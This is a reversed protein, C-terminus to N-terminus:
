QVGGSHECAYEGLSTKVLKNSKFTLKYETCRDHTNNEELSYIADAAIIYPHSEDYKNYIPSTQDSIITGGIKDELTHIKTGSENFVIVDKYEDTMDRSVKIVYLYEKDGKITGVKVSDLEANRTRWYEIAYDMESRSDSDPSMLKDYETKGVEDIYVKDAIKKNNVYLDAYISGSEYNGDFRYELTVNKNNVKKTENVIFAAGAHEKDGDIGDCVAVRTKSAKDKNVTLKYQELQFLSYRNKIYYIGDSAIYRWEYADGNIFKSYNLCNTDTIRVEIPGLNFNENALLLGKDNTIYVQYFDHLGFVFYEKDTKITKIGKEKIYKIYDAAAETCGKDSEDCDFIDPGGSAILNLSFAKVGGVFVDVDSGNTKTLTRFEIKVNQGNIKKTISEEKTYTKELKWIAMLTIDETVEAKFDYKEGELQWEVFKWGNKTPAKPEKVSGKIKVEEAKIESGGDTDFTVTYTKEKWTAVLTIDKQVPKEFDFDKGDLQWSVFVYEYKTPEIPKELKEGKKVYITKTASGNNKDLTVAWVDERKSWEAVLTIDATVSSSFSYNEGNYKWGTFNFGEKTPDTPKSVTEGETVTQSDVSTGGNSDFRVTYTKKVVEERKNDDECGTLLVSSFVLMIAIMISFIKKKM